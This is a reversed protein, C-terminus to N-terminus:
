NGIQLHHHLENITPTLIESTSNMQPKLIIDTMYDIKNQNHEHYHM